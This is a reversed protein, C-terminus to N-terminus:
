HLVNVPNGRQFARINQGVIDILRQRSEKAAWAQHPTILCNPIGILPHSDDPPEASLVDLGAGAIVGNILANKLALEDILGGRGTNILIATSKMAELTDANIFGTNADTLPAHLSLIDSQAILSLTDCLIIGEEERDMSKRNALVKMGFALGIKAVTMGIKGLGYIGLTKGSLEYIHQYGYSWVNQKTWEGEHIMRSTQEVKNRLSLILSFVHQAVSTSSYGVANCVLIGLEEAADIDINNYGSALLCICKLEPLQTMEHRGIIVKNTILISADAARSVIDQADTKDHIILDGLASISEWSVDGPNAAKGDLIVIKM